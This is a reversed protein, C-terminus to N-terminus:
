AYSSVMDNSLQTLYEIMVDPEDEGQDIGDIFLAIKATQNHMDMLNSFSTSLEEWSWELLTIDCSRLANYTIWRKPSVQSVLEPAASLIHWLITRLMGERTRRLKEIGFERFYFNALLLPLNGAWANLYRKLSPHRTAAKMLTSKGSCMKGSIWYIRKTDEELWRTFRSQEDVVTTNTSAETQTESMFWEYTDDDAITIFNERNDLLKFSLSEVIARRIHCELSDDAIDPDHNLLSSDIREPNWGSAWLNQTLNARSVRGNISEATLSKLEDVFSQVDAASSEM